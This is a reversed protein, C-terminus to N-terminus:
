KFALVWLTRAWGGSACMEKQKGCHTDDVAAM